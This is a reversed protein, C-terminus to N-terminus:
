VAIRGDRRSQTQAAAANTTRAIAKAVQAQLAKFDESIQNLSELKERLEEMQDRHMTGLARFMM